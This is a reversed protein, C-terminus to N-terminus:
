HQWSTASRPPAHNIALQMAQDPSQALLGQSTVTGAIRAPFTHVIIDYVHLSIRSAHLPTDSIISLIREAASGKMGPSSAARVGLQPPCTWQDLSLTPLHPEVGAFSTFQGISPPPSFHEAEGMGEARAVVPQITCCSQCPKGGGCTDRPRAQVTACCRTM